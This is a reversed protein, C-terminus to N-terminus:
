DFLGGLQKGVRNGLLGGAIGGIVAGAAMGVPGGGVGAMMGYQAGAWGGALTGTGSGAAELVSENGDKVQHYGDYIEYAVAVPIAAKGVVSLAGKGYAPAAEAAPGARAAVRSEVEGPDPLKPNAPDVGYAANVSGRSESSSRIIDDLAQERSMGYKNAKHEILEDMSKNPEERFLQAALDRDAMLDRAKTRIENRLDVAIRARQEVPLDSKALTDNLTKLRKEAETYYNRTEAETLSGDPYQPLGLSAIGYNGRYSGDFAAAPLQEPRIEGDAARIAAALADDAEEANLLLQNVLVQLAARDAERENADEVSMVTQLISRVSGDNDISFMKAAAEARLKALNDKIAQIKTAAASAARGIAAVQGGHQSLDVRTRGVSRQAAAAADGDWTSFTSLNRLQAAQSDCHAEESACVDFVAEIDGVNWRDIDDIGIM